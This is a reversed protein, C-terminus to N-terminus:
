EDITEITGLDLWLSRIQQCVDCDKDRAPDNADLWIRCLERLDFAADSIDGLLPAEM